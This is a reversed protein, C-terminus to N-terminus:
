RRADIFPAALRTALANSMPAQGLNALAAVVVRQEPYVVLVARGGVSSGTHGIWRRGAGDIGSSWGIGYGTPEGSRLHQSTTLLAITAPKLIGGAVHAWGFRAIDESNSVFGGGAWKNSQDVYPANTLRRDEAREYFRARWPILSDVHEAVISRMGLPDFVHATMYKLFSEGSAGEVVASVLNFGYTSYLYRTGPEHRLSDNGFISLASRVDSYHRSSLMEGPPGYHRIGALHGGVQRTTIPWRQRPYDPVYSQVPVDLDLKGREVLLGVAEAAVPKSISGIRFRTLPTAAVRNELDAYGMGESWVTRGDVIVAVSLGPIGEADRLRSLTARGSDVAAQYRALVHAGAWAGDVGTATAPPAVQASAKPSAVSM